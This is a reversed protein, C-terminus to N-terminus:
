PLQRVSFDDFLARSRWASLWIGGKSLREDTAEVMLKGDLYGRLHQGRVEFELTYWKDRVITCAYWRLIANHGTNSADRYFMGLHLGTPVGDQCTVVLNYRDRNRIGFGAPTTRATIGFVGEGSAISEKLCVRVTVIYDTWDIQNLRATSNALMLQGNEVAHAPPPSTETNSDLIWWYKSPGNDFNDSFVPGVIPEAQPAPKIEAPKKEAVPPAKRVAEAVDLERIVGAPRTKVAEEGTCSIMKSDPSWCFSDAAPPTNEMETVKGTDPSFLCLRSTAGRRGGYFALRQGDPSWGLWSASECGADQLRVIVRASGGAVPFGSIMRDCVVAVERSDPSWGFTPSQGKPTTLITRVTGGEAPVVQLMERDPAILNFAIMKGDASWVPWPRLEYPTQAIRLPKGGETFLIWLECGPDSKHPLAFKTGDPSWAGWQQAINGHPNQWGEFILTAPGTARGEKLSIPAVYFDIGKGKSELDEYLVKRGDPSLSELWLRDKGLSKLDFRVRDGRTLPVSWLQQDYKEDMALVALSASDSTWSYDWIEDAGAFAGISSVPDGSVPVIKSAPRLDFSSRYFYLKKGDTSKGIFTGVAEPPFVDFNQEDSLRAFHIAERYVMNVASVVWQSDSTWTALDDPLECPCPRAIKAPGAGIPRVWIGDRPISYAIMKGDPSVLGFDAYDPQRSLRGDRLSITGIEYEWQRNYKLFLIRESDTSWYIRGRFWNEEEELVKRAPGTPRGTEPSVPLVEIGGANFAIKQGDPSWAASWSEVGAGQLEKLTFAPSGDLPVVRGHWLLFKGNPSMAIANGEIVDNAGGMTKAVVFKLGTNPDVISDSEGAPPAKETAGAGTAPGTPSADKNSREARAMPLLVAAVLIIAITGLVGIRANKPVPRTLMHKIRGQLAKRSEAVGILRLGFDAKWFAMESIDILTNSYSKAQGGLTVLVTEDVAEECTRRIIANAFWVFPNYFYVVQLFTQVANVWLDARKIHALEHILAARFGEPSLKDVLATPMLIMPRLLGCVAPSPVTDLTRLGVQRRVGVQEGCQELLGVLDGGAPTSAAVLGRVFRLRQALLAAFALAGVLWLLFAVAQWTIPTLSLAVSTVPADTEAMNSPPQVQPIGSSPESGAYRGQSAPEFGIANSVRESVPSAAPIRNGVWYGIGTPLSLTPPLVLKVLVLMWICYRFVARVRKRLLLDIAFLLIVLLASQVFAGAAHSCFAKGIGNLGALCDNIAQNM